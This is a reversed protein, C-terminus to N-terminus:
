SPEGRQDIAQILLKRDLEAQARNPRKVPVRDGSVLRINFQWGEEHDAQFVASVLVIHDLVVAFGAIEYSRQSM